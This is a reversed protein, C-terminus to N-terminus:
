RRDAAGDAIKKRMIGLNWEDGGQDSVAYPVRNLNFAAAIESRHSIGTLFTTDSM